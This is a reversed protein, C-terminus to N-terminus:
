FNISFSLFDHDRDMILDVDRVGARALEDREVIVETPPIDITFVPIKSRSIDMNPYYARYPHIKTKM